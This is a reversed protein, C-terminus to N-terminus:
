RICVHLKTDVLAFMDVSLNNARLIAVFARDKDNADAQLLGHVLSGGVVGDFDLTKM